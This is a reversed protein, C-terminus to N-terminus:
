LNVGVVEQRKPPNARLKKFLEVWQAGIKEWTITNAYQKAAEVKSAVVGSKVDRYCDMMTGVIDDLRGYPRYGSNDVWINEKCPYLYGRKGSALQEPFCTNDPVVLPLGVPYADLHTLGWGEGLTTTVFGDACNYFANLVDIPFPKHAAYNAPFIVDTKMSLGMHQCSAALDVTTDRIATHLYLKSNPVQKRFEAFAAITRPLDKRPSNRNVNLWVFTEDDDVKLLQLRALKREIPDIKKFVKNDVGHTIVSMKSAVHPLKKLTELKGFECYAVIHDAAELMGTASPIVQCDVPYYYVITPVKQRNNKLVDLIKSLEKGVKDVVFTDNMIWVFDYKGSQLANVFMQNGYPDQPILLKAPSVQVPYEKQDFFEGNYNIALQDINFYPALAKVVYKSVTGFGTGALFCDSWMLLNPKSNM